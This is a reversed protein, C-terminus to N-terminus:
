VDDDGDGILDLFSRVKPTSPQTPAPPIEVKGVVEAEFAAILEKARPIPLMTRAAIERNFVEVLEANCHKGRIRDLDPVDPARLLLAPEGKVLLYFHQRPLASMQRTFALRRGGEGGSPRSREDSVVHPYLSAADEARFYGAWRCNTELTKVLTADVGDWNQTSFLLGLGASRTTRVGLM